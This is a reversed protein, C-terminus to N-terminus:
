AGEDADPALELLRDELAHFGQEVAGAGERVEGVLIGALETVLDLAHEADGPDRRPDTALAADLLAAAEEAAAFVGALGTALATRADDDLGVKDIWDSIREALQARRLMPDVPEDDGGDSEPHIPLQRM